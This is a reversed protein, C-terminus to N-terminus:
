LLRVSNAQAIPHMLGDCTQLMLFGEQNIGSMVGELWCDGQQLTVLQGTLASFQNAERVIVDFHSGALSGLAVIESIVDSLLKERDVRSGLERVVSTAEVEDPFDQNEVNIGIGVILFQDYGEVLIGAVKLGHIWVDNPWKLQAILGLKRLVRVVALASVLSFRSWISREIEPELVLSFLLGQESPCTWCNGGRGRGDTQYEALVLTGSQSGNAILDAATDNSSKLVQAYHFLGRMQPMMELFRTSKFKM